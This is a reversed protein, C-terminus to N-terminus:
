KINQYCGSASVHITSGRSTSPRLATPQKVQKNLKIHREDRDKSYLVPSKFLLHHWSFRCWVLRTAHSHWHFTACAHLWLCTQHRKNLSKHTLRISSHFIFWCLFHERALGQTHDLPVALFLAGRQSAEKSELARERERERNRLPWESM